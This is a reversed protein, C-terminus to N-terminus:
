IITISKLIDKVVNKSNGSKDWVFLYGQTDEVLSAKVIAINSKQKDTDQLEWIQYEFANTKSTNSIQNDLIFGEENKELSYNFETSGFNTTFLSIVEEYSSDEIGTFGIEIKDQNKTLFIDVAGGLEIPLVNDEWDAPYKITFNPKLDSIYEYSYTKTKIQNNPVFTVTPNNIEELEKTPELTQNENSLNSSNQNNNISLLLMITVTFVVIALLILLLYIKKFNKM